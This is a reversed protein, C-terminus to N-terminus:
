HTLNEEAEAETALSFWGQANTSFCPERWNARPLPHRTDWPWSKEM